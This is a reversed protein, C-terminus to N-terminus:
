CLVEEVIIFDADEKRISLEYGRIHVQIPDGLPAKKTIQIKSGPIIGMELLRHRFIGEGNVQTIKMIQGIKVESLKM